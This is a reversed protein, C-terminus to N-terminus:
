IYYLNSIIDKHEGINVLSSCLIVEVNTYFVMIDSYRNDRYVIAISTMLNSFLKVDITM